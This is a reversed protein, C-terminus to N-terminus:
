NYQLKYFVFQLHYPKPVLETTSQLAPLWLLCVACRLTACCMTCCSVVCPMVASCFCLVAPLVHQECSSCLITMIHHMFFATHLQILMRSPPALGDWYPERAMSQFRRQQVYVVIAPSWQSQIALATMIQQYM